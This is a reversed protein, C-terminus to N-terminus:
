RYSKQRQLASLKSNADFTRKYMNPLGFQAHLELHPPICECVHHSKSSVALHIRVRGVLHTIALMAAHSIHEM